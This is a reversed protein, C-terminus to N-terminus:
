GRAPAELTGSDYAGVYTSLRAAPEASAEVVQERTPTKESGRGSIGLFAAFRSFPKRHEGSRIEEAAAAPVVMEGKHIQALGTQSIERAGSEFGTAADGLKGVAGGITAGAPGGFACGVMRGLPGLVVGGGGRGGGGSALKDSAVSLKQSSTTLQIGATNLTNASGQLNQTGAQFATATSSDDAAPMAGVGGDGEVVMGGEASPIGFA